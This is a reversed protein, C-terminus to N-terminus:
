PCLQHLPVISMLHHKELFNQHTADRFNHCFKMAKLNTAVKEQRHTAHIWECICHVVVLLFRCVKQDSHTIEVGAIVIPQGADGIPAMRHIDFGHGIRVPLPEIEYPPKTLDNTDTSPTTTSSLFTTFVPKGVPSIAFADVAGLLTTVLAVVNIWSTSVIM